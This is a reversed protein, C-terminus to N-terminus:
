RIVVMQVGNGAASQLQVSYVGAPVNQVDLTLVQGLSLGQLTRNMVIRGDAAVLTAVVQGELAQGLSIHLMDDAPNPQVLMPISQKNPEDTGVTAPQVIVGYEPASACAQNGGDATICAEGAYNFLDMIEVEDIYWAGDAPATNDDSGFRFRFTIDKGSYESLDFYSQKWGNSNGSFGDLFPIAFTGYQVAGDYGGRIGDAKTLRHWQMFPDDKEQIEVFGADAGAETEYQHWFRLTPKAGTVVLHLTTELSFDSEVPVDRGAWASTGSGPHVVDSQLIFIEGTALDVLNAYWELEDELLDQFYRDSGIAASSKAAYTLKTVQGSPMTGLDWRVMGGVLTGGNSASLLTLGAPLEDTVVVNTAADDKHNTVTIEFAVDDGPDITPTTTIKKIKLEKICTPIPDFNEIGDGQSGSDGQDALYGLGRRAFVSSILCTDTGNYNIIDAMMIADRGDQFGPNCPQMKMGDVVLQVARYNGSNTNNLDADWGYKEVMAWYLDWVMNSWVEGVGHPAVSSAVSGYTLPAITMDTSYPYRRIGQGDTEQYLAYTGIGRKDPGLDGSEVTLILGAWDSWGEGMQEANGLCTAGTGTLRNSIGHAFEHAIIGNDFDGDRQDPGAITPLGISINLGAGAYQRLLDCDSKKMMVVPITVQAGVAGAGMGVTADEFNCIICAIGGAQQVNLSKMGFECVGRDVMVVKGAVDNVPPNCGLTPDGSGDSVFVVDGTVPTSTIAGGWGNGDSASGGYDGIVAGPGNVTVLKGGARNWVFMQMRGHGGDAPTSFNANNIGSGDIAQAYVEDNGLGGNGYNNSQFNGADEDFGYRYFVDHIMNNMYFLNTIAAQTNPGPEANPDFPFDFNLTAGGDASESPDPTDDSASDNFAWVNNGRTYTFDQGSAGNTDLWGFPSAQPDAPNTVISRNGHIPSELPLAFVNYQEDILLENKGAKASAVASLAASKPQRGNVAKESCQDAGGGRHGHGLQCYTTHNLKNSIMGNQADVTITWLDATNAQDIVMQWSLRVMGDNTLVFAAFVPIENKSIAGGEFVFNQENAKSRLAPVPFGTFGLNVMAMELAKAASISPLKTNIRRSLDNVFRHGLHMVEGGPKVHLGFLGNYVPIGHQQQQVWVHTVGNHKTRYERVVRVDSVDNQTLEFKTPTEQLFRLATERASRDQASLGMAMFAFLGTVLSLRTYLLHRNM